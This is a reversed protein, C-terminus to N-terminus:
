AGGPRGGGELQWQAAASGDKSSSRRRAATRTATGHRGAATRTATGHRGAATRTATGHRLQVWRATATALRGNRGVALGGHQWQGGRSVGTQRVGRWGQRVARVAAATGGEQRAAPRQRRCAAIGARAASMSAGGQGATSGQRASDQQQPCGDWTSGPVTGGLASRQPSCCALEGGCRAALCAGPPPNPVAVAHCAARRHPPLTVHGPHLRRMAQPWGTCRGM